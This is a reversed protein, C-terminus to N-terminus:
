GGIVEDREPEFIRRLVRKENDSMRLKHEERLKLSWPECGYL